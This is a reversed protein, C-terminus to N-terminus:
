QTINYDDLNLGMSKYTDYYTNSHKTVAKNFQKQICLNICFCYRNLMQDFIPDYSLYKNYCTFHDVPINRNVDYNMIMHIMLRQSYMNCSALWVNENINLKYYLGETNHIKNIFLKGLNFGPQYDFLILDSDEPIYDIENIINIDKLFRVDDEITIIKKYDHYLADKFITCHNKYTSQSPTISEDKDFFMFKVKDIIGIRTLEDVIGQYREDKYPNYILCYVKDVLDFLM